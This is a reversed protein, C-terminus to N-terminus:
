EEKKKVVVASQLRSIISIYLARMGENFQIDEDATTEEVFARNALDQLVMEGDASNFVRLYLQDTDDETFQLLKTKKDNINKLNEIMTNKGILYFGHGM